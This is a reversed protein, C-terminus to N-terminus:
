WIRDMKEVAECWNKGVSTHIAKKDNGRSPKGTNRQRPITLLRREWSLIGM